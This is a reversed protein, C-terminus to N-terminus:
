PREGVWPYACTSCPRLDARDVPARTLAERMQLYEPNTLLDFLGGPWRHEGKMDMCCTWWEGEAALFLQTKFWRCARHRHALVQSQEVESVPQINGARSHWWGHPRGAHNEFRVRPDSALIPWRLAPDPGLDYINARIESLPLALLVLEGIGNGEEIMDLNTYLVLKAGPLKQHAYAIWGHLGEHWAALPEGFGCFVFRQSYGLTALDDILRVVVDTSLYTDEAHRGKPLGPDCFACRRNCYTTPEVEVHKIESLVAKV